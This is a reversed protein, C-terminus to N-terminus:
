SKRLLRCLPLALRWAGRGGMAVYRMLASGLKNGMRSPSVTCAYEKAQRAWDGRGERAFLGGLIFSRYALAAMARDPSNSLSCIDERVADLSHMLAEASLSFSEGTISDAHARVAHYSRIKNWVIKPRHLLMRTGLEWDNWRMVSENWGGAKELFDRRVIFSQTSLEGTLIQAELSDDYLFVRRRLGKPGAINTACAVIEAEASVFNMMDDLFNKGMIDDSDFFSVWQGSSERFGRNRAASAGRREEEVVKIVFGSDSNAEGFQRCADLSEDTSGNDVVILEVPRYSQSKISHLTDTVMGARNYVPVVVSILM